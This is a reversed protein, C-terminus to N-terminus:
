DCVLDQMELKRFIRILDNWKVEWGRWKEAGKLAGLRLAAVSLGGGATLPGATGDSPTVSDLGAAVGLAFRAAFGGGGGGPGTYSGAVMRRAVGAPTVVKLTNDQFTAPRRASM